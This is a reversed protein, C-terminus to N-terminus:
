TFTLTFGTLNYSCKTQTTAIARAKRFAAVSTKDTTGTLTDVKEIQCCCCKCSAESEFTLDLSLSEGPTLNIPLNGVPGAIITTRGEVIEFLRITFESTFAQEGPMLPPCSINLTGTVTLKKSIGAFVSIAQFAKETGQATADPLDSFNAFYTTSLSNENLNGVVLPSRILSFLVIPYFQTKGAESTGFLSITVRKSKLLKIMDLSLDVFQDAPRLLTRKPEGAVLQETAALIQCDEEGVFYKKVRFLRDFTPIVFPDPVTYSIWLKVSVDSSNVVVYMSDYQTIEFSGKRNTRTTMYFAPGGSEKYRCESEPCDPERSCNLEIANTIMPLCINEDQVSISKSLFQPSYFGISVDGVNEKLPCIEWKIQHNLYSDFFFTQLGTKKVPGDTTEPGFNLLRLTPDISGSNSKPYPIGILYTKKVLPVPFNDILGSVGTTWLGAYPLIEWLQNLIKKDTNEFTALNRVSSSKSNM